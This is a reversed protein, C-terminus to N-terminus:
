IKLLSTRWRLVEETHLIVPLLCFLAFAAFVAAAFLSYDASPPLSPYFTFSAAGAIFAATLFAAFATLISLVAIDSARMKKFTLPKRTKLGYGRARMSAATELGDCLSWSLLAALNRYGKKIGGGGKGILIQARKVEKLRRKYRPFLGASMTLVLATKPLVRGFLGLFRHPSIVAGYAYFWLLVAAIVGGLTLGNIISELTVPNYLYFLITVGSSVSLANVLTFLIIVPLAFLLFFKVAAGKKLIICYFFAGILSVAAYAPHVTVATLIIVAAFFM